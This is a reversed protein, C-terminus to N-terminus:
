KKMARKKFDKDIGRTKPFNTSPTELPKGLARALQVGNVYKEPDIGFNDFFELMQEQNTFCCVFYFASDCVDKMRQKERAMKTKLGKDIDSVIDATLRETEEMSLLDGSEEREERKRDAWSM